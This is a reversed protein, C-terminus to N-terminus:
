FPDADIGFLAAANPATPGEYESARPRPSPRWATIRSACFLLMVVCTNCHANDNTPLEGGPRRGPGPFAQEGYREFAACWDYLKSRKVELERALASASEGNQMRRVGCIM